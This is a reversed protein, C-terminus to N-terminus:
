YYPDVPFHCGFTKVEFCVKFDVKNDFASCFATRVSYYELSWSILCIFTQGISFKLFIWSGGMNGKSSQWWTQRGYSESASPPYPWHKRIICFILTSVCIHQEWKYMASYYTREDKLAEKERQSTLSFALFQQLSTSSNCPKYKPSCLATIFVM